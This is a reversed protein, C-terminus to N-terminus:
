KVGKTKQVSGPSSTPQIQAIQPDTGFFQHCHTTPTKKCNFAKQIWPESAIIKEAREKGFPHSSTMNVPRKNCVSRTFLRLSKALDKPTRQNSDLAYRGVVKGTMVDAMAETMESSSTDRCDKFDENKWKPGLTAYGEKLARLRKKSHIGEESRGDALRHSQKLCQFTTELPYVGRVGKTIPAAIGLEEIKLLADAPLTLNAGAVLKGNEKFLEKASESDSESLLKKSSLETIKSEFNESGNSHHHSYRCGCPDISHGLEHAIVAMASLDPEKSYASCLVMKHATRSYFANLVDQGCRSTGSEFGGFEITKIKQILDEQSQAGGELPKASLEEILYSKAKLFLEKMRKIEREKQVEAKPRALPTLKVSPATAPVPTITNLDFFKGQAVLVRKAQTFLLSREESPLKSLYDRDFERWSVQRPKANEDDAPWPLFLDPLQARRLNKDKDRARYSAILHLQTPSSAAMKFFDTGKTLSTSLKMQADLATGQAKLYGQPDNEMAVQVPDLQAKRKLEPDEAQWPDWRDSEEGLETCDETISKISCDNATM